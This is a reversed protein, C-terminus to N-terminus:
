ALHGAVRFTSFGGPKPIRNPVRHFNMQGESPTAYPHAAAASLRPPPPSTQAVSAGQLM